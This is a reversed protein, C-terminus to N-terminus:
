LWSSAIYCFHCGIFVEDVKLGIGNDVLATGYRANYYCLYTRFRWTEFGQYANEGHRARESVM